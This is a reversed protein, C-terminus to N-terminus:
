RAPHAAQVAVAASIFRISTATITLTAALLPAPLMAAGMLYGPASVAAGVPTDVPQLAGRV